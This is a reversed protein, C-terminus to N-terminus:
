RFVTGRKALVRGRGGEPTLPPFLPRYSHGCQGGGREVFSKSAEGKKGPLYNSIGESFSGEVGRSHTLRPLTSIVVNHNIEAPHSPPSLQQVSVLLHQTPSPSNKKIKKNYYM